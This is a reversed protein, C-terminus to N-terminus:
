IMLFFFCYSYYRAIVVYVDHFRTITMLINCTTYRISNPYAITSSFSKLLHIKIIYFPINAHQDLHQICKHLPQILM